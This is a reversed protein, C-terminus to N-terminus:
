GVFDLVPLLLRKFSHFSACTSTSQELTARLTWNQELGKQVIEMLKERESEALAVQIPPQHNSEPRESYGRDRYQTKLAFCIAWPEGREIAADLKSEILDGRLGYQFKRVDQLEPFERLYKYGDNACM